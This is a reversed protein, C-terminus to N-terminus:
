RFLTRLGTGGTGAVGGGLNTSTIMVSWVLSSCSVSSRKVKMRLSSSRSQSGNQAANRSFSSIGTFMFTMKLIFSLHPSPCLVNVIESLASQSAATSRRFVDVSASSVTCQSYITHM